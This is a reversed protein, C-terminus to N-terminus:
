FDEAIKRVWSDEDLSSLFSNWESRHTRVLRLLRSECEPGECGTAKAIERVELNERGFREDVRCLLSMDAVAAIASERDADGSAVGSSSASLNLTPANLDDWVYDSDERDLVHACVRRLLCGGCIGCDLAISDDGKARRPNRSCSRTSTWAKEIEDVSLGSLTEAKTRWANPHLFKPSWAWIRNLLGSLRFTFAPSTSRYPHEPGVPVLSAGISGQGNEPVVIEEAGALRAAVAALVFYLFTRTRYTAERGKRRSTVPVSARWETSASSTSRARSAADTGSDTTVLFPFDGTARVALLSAFSDLGGSYPIVVVRRGRAEPPAALELQRPLVRRRKPRPKFQFRWTDGSLFRLTDAIEFSARQWTAPHSVEAEVSFSRAWGASQILKRRVRRDCHAVLAAFGIVDLDLDTLNRWCFRAIASSGIRVDSGLEFEFEERILSRGPLEANVFAFM